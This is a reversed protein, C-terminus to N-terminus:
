PETTPPERKTLAHFVVGAVIHAGADNPHVTDAFFSGKGKFPTYLDIVTAGTKRAVQRVKPTIEKRITTDNIGWRGPFAPLPICVYVKVSPNVARFEGIMAEYDAVYQGEYQWNSAVNTVTGVPHKSDNAGLSIIVIDPHFDLANRYAPQNVYPKDGQKLMTAGNVGFNRVDWGTGLWRGVVAPWNDQVRNTLTAGYVISDGVCAVRVVSPTSVDARASAGCGILLALTIQFWARRSFLPSLTKKM